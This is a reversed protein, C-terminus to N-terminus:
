SQVSVMQMDDLKLYAQTINSACAVLDLHARWGEDGDCLRLYKKVLYGKSPLEMEEGVLVRMAVMYRDIADTYKGEKFLANGQDKIYNCRCLAAEDRGSLSKKEKKKEAIARLLEEYDEPSANQDKKLEEYPELETRLISAPFALRHSTLGSANSSSAALQKADETGM